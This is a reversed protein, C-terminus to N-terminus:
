PSRYFFYLLGISASVRDEVTTLPQSKEFYFGEIDRRM